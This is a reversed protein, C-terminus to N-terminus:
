NHLLCHPDINTINISLYQLDSTRSFLVDAVSNNCSNNFRNETPETGPSKGAVVFESEVPKPLADEPISDVKSCRVNTHKIEVLNQYQLFASFIFSSHNFLESSPHLSYYFSIISLPVLIM